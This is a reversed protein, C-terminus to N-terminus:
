CAFRITALTEGEIGIARGTQPPADIDLVIPVEGDAIGIALPTRMLQKPTTRPLPLGRAPGVRYNPVFVGCENGLQVLTSEGLVIKTCRGNTKWMAEIIAETISLGSYDLVQESVAASRPPSPKLIVAQPEVWARGCPEVWARGCGSCTPGYDGNHWKDSNCHDCYVTPM